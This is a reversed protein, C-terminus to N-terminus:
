WMEFHIPESTLPNGFYVEALKSDLHFLVTALTRIDNDAAGGDRYIPFTPNATDGLFRKTDTVSKPPSVAAIDRIRKMREVSSGDVLGVLNIWEFMNAHAAWYPPVSENALPPYVQKLSTLQNIAFVAMPDQEVSFITFQGIENPKTSAVNYNDAAGPHAQLEKSLLEEVSKMAYMARGKINSPVGNDFNLNATFVYNDSLALGHHNFGFYNGAMSGPYAYAVFRERISEGDESTITANVFYTYNLIWGVNDENHGFGADTASNVLIDTCSSPRKLLSSTNSELGGFEDIANLVFMQDFTTDAGYALGAFEDTLSPYLAQVKAKFRELLQAGEKSEAIQMAAIFDSQQLRAAILPKAQTAISVACAYYTGTCSYIPPIRPAGSVTAAALVAVYVAIRLMSRFGTPMSNLGVAVVSIGILELHNMREDFRVMKNVALYLLREIGRRRV